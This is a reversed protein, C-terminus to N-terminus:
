VKLLQHSDSSVSHTLTYPKVDWQVCLLDNQLRYDKWVILQVPVSLWVIVLVGYIGVHQDGLSCLWRHSGLRLTTVLWNTVGPECSDLANGVNKV